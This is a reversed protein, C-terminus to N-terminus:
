YGPLSSSGRQDKIASASSTPIFVFVTNIGSVSEEGSGCVRWVCSTSGDGNVAKGASGGQCRM